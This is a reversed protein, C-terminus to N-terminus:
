VVKRKSASAIGLQSRYKAIARRSINIGMSVFREAISQDSLPTIKDESDIIRRLQERIAHASINQESGIGVANSFFSDLPLVRGSFQLFKDKITRSITSNSLSLEEALESRTLPALEGGFLFFAQQKEAILRLVRELTHARGNLGSIVDQAEKLKARLYKNTANDEVSKQILSSYYDDLRVQPLVRKNISIDINGDSVSIFADPIIVANPSDSFFGRSPIPNLSLIIDAAKKTDDPSLKLLRSLAKYDRDGLSPLGKMILTILHDISVFGFCSLVSGKECAAQSVQILLCESLSRAGVGAPDFSQLIFLAEELTERSVSLEGSLEDLPIDLYGTSSLCDILYSVLGKYPEAINKKLGLQEHLYENLTQPRSFFSTYDSVGDNKDSASSRAKTFVDPIDIDTSISVRESDNDNVSSYENILTRKEELASFQELSFDGSSAESLEILPNSLSLERVYTNLELLPLQLFVLSQQMAQSLVMKQSINVQLDMKM